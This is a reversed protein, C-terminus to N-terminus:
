KLIGQMTGTKLEKNSGQMPVVSERTGLKVKLTGVMVPNSLAVRSPWGAFQASM